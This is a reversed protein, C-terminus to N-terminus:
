VIYAQRLDGASVLNDRSFLVSPLKTDSACQKQDEAEERSTLGAQCAAFAQRMVPLLIIFFAM